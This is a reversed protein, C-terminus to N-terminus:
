GQKKMCCHKYKKGSGCPCPDNRDKSLIRWSKMFIRINRGSFRQRSWSKMGKKWWACSYM